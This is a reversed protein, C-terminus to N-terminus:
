ARTTPRLPPEDDAADLPMLWLLCLAAGFVLFGAFEFTFPWAQIAVAVGGMVLFPWQLGFQFPPKSNMADIGHM